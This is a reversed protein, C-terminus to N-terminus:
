SRALELQIDQLQATLRQEPDRSQTSEALHRRARQLLRRRIPAPEGGSLPHLEVRDSELDFIQDTSAGFDLVLKYRSERIGLMRPGFRNSWSFPNTCGAVCEIVAPEDWSQAERSRSWLSRGRFSAPVPLDMADLLTPALHLLSFPSEVTQAKKVAPARLLLPVRILEETLKSPAHYRGGHDLFEEGHDATLAFVCNEWKGLTRLADVLRAIQADVWAIAADYLSIVEERHKQLRNSGIDSRQWLSNVYSARSSGGGGRNRLQLAEQKPYYPSHPDMFHLWLFFPQEAVNALWACAQDVITDAAPFRRLEDFSRTPNAIRQCYQFYIEDYAAALPRLKHSASRLRRNLRSRFRLKAEERNEAASTEAGLFNEFLDFGAAYGFQKSLYPNGAVLAATAHGSEKLTSALTAEEPSLGIVDRGLALPYRSAMISPVSYYTPSGAVIANKMVLSQSTLSDLFPTTSRDYGLFGVHDARLCDVTIFVLSRSAWM